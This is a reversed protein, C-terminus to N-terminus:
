KFDKLVTDANKLNSLEEVDYFQFDDYDNYSIYLDGDDDQQLWLGDDLHVIDFKALDVYDEYFKNKFYDTGMEEIAEYSIYLKGMGNNEQILLLM